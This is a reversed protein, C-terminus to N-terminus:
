RNDTPVCKEQYTLHKSVVSYQTRYNKIVNISHKKHKKRGGQKIHKTFDEAPNTEDEKGARKM